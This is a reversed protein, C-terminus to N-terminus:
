LKDYFSNLAKLLLVLKDQTFNNVYNLLFKHFGYKYKDIETLGNSVIYKYKFASLRNNILEKVYEKKEIDDKYKKVSMEYSKLAKKNKTNKDNLFNNSDLTMLYDKTSGYVSKAIPVFGYKDEEILSRGSRDDNLWDSWISYVIYENFYDELKDEIYLASFNAIKYTVNDTFVNYINKIVYNLYQPEENFNKNYRNYINTISELSLDSSLNTSNNDENIADKFFNDYLITDGYEEYMKSYKSIDKFNDKCKRINADVIRDLVYTSLTKEIDTKCDLDDIKLCQFFGFCLNSINNRIIKIISDMNPVRLYDFLTKYPELYKRIEGYDSLLNSITASFILYQDDFGLGERGNLKEIFVDYYIKDSLVEFIESDSVYEMILPINKEYDMIETTMINVINEKDSIFDRTFGCKNYNKLIYCKDLQKKLFNQYSVVGNVTKSAYLEDVLKNFYDKYLIQRRENAVEEIVPTTPKIEPMKDIIDQVKAYEELILKRSNERINYTVNKSYDMNESGSDLWKRIFYRKISNRADKKDVNVLSQPSFLRNFVIM